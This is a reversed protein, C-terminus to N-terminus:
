HCHQPSTLVDLAINTRHLEPKLTMSLTSMYRNFLHYSNNTLTAEEWFDHSFASTTKPNTQLLPFQPVPVRLTLGQIVCARYVWHAGKQKPMWNHGRYLERPSPLYSKHCGLTQMLCRLRCMSVRCKAEIERLIMLSGDSRYNNDEIREESLPKFFHPSSLGLHPYLSM